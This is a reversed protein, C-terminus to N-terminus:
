IYWRLFRRRKVFSRRRGEFAPYTVRTASLLLDRADLALRTEESDGGHDPHRQAILRRFAAQVAEPPADPAIGLTTAAQERTLM